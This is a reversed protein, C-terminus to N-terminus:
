RTLHRRVFPATGLVLVTFATLRQLGPQVTFHSHQIGHVAYWNAVLDTAMITCALDLGARRGRLLLLAALTDLLALSTWYLNLWGPAWDYPHLGHQLLGTIHAVSGVLLLGSAYACVLAVAHRPTRSMWGTM